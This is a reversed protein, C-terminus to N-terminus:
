RPKVAVVDPGAHFVDGLFRSLQLGVRYDSPDGESTGGLAEYLLADLLRGGAAVNSLVVASGLRTNVELLVPEPADFVQVNLPGRLGQRALADITRQALDDVAPLSVTHSKYSEGAVVKDRM